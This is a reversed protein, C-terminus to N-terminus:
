PLAAAGHEVKEKKFADPAGPRCQPCTYVMREHRGHRASLPLRTRHTSRKGTTKYREEKRRKKDAKEKVRKQSPM